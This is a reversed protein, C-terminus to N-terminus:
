NISTNEKQNVIEKTQNKNDIRTYNRLKLITDPSIITTCEVRINEGSKNDHYNWFGQYHINETLIKFVVKVGFQIEGGQSLVM